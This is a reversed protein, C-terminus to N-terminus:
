WMLLADPLRISPQREKSIGRADFDKLSNKKDKRLREVDVLGDKCLKICLAAALNGGASEGTVIVKGTQLGILPAVDGNVISTFVKTVENIAVPFKHDPLLAYEIAIVVSKTVGSWDMLFPIDGALTHAFFGGGTLHFIIDKRPYEGLNVTRSPSMQEELITGLHTSHTDRSRNQQRRYRKIATSLAPCPDKSIIFCSVGCINIREGIAAGKLLMSAQLSLTKVVPLSVMGWTNQILDTHTSSSELGSANDNISSMVAKSKRTPGILAYYGAAAAAALPMWISNKKKEISGHNNKRADDESQRKTIDIATGVSAYLCDMVWKVVNYRFSGETGWIGYPKQSPILTLLHRCQEDQMKEGLGCSQILVWQQQWDELALSTNLLRTNLCLRRWGKRIIMFSGVIGMQKACTHCIRKYKNPVMNMKHSSAALANVGATSLIIWHLKSKSQLISRAEEIRVLCLQLVVILRFLLSDIASKEQIDFSTTPSLNMNSYSSTPSMTTTSRAPQLLSSPSPARINNLDQQHHHHDMQQIQHASRVSFSQSRGRQRLIPGPFPSSTSQPNNGSTNLSSTSGNGPASTCKQSSMKILEDVTSALTTTTSLQVPLLMQPQPSSTTGYHFDRHDQSSLVKLSAVGSSTSADATAKAQQVLTLLYYHILQEVSLLTRDLDLVNPNVDDAMIDSSSLSRYQHKTDDNDNDNSGNSPYEKEKLGQQQLPPSQPYMIDHLHRRSTLILQAADIAYHYEKMQQSKMIENLTDM